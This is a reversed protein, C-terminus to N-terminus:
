KPVIFSAKHFPAVGVVSFARLEPWVAIGSYLEHCAGRLVEAQQREKRTRATKIDPEFGSAKLGTKANLDIVVSTCGDLPIAGGPRERRRAVNM